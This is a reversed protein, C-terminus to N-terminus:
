IRSNPLMKFYTLGLSFFLIFDRGYNAGAISVFTHIRKTLPRGVFEGTDICRGGMIAQINFKVITLFLFLGKSYYSLGYFLGHRRHGVQLVEYDGSPLEQGPFNKLHPVPFFIYRNSM